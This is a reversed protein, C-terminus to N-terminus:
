HIHKDGPSLLIPNENDGILRTLGHVIDEMAALYGAMYVDETYNEPVHTLIHNINDRYGILSDRLNTPTSILPLEKDFM